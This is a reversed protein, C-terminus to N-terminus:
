KNQDNSGLIYADALAKQLAWVSVELFDQSDNNVPELNKRFSLAPIHKKAIAFLTDNPPAQAIKQAFVPLIVNLANAIKGQETHSPEAYYLNRYFNLEELAKQIEINNSM